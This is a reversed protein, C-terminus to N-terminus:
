HSRPRALQVNLGQERSVGPVRRGDLEQLAKRAEYDHAYTVYAIGKDEIFRLEEITGFRELALSVHEQDANRLLRGIFVRRRDVEEGAGDGRGQGADAAM